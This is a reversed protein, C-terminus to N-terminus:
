HKVQADTPWLSLGDEVAKEIESTSHNSNSDQITSLALSEAETLWRIATITQSVEGSHETSALDPMVKRLLGLGATVQTSGMERNGLVHEILVNLINSNKIKDRHEAGMVYHPGKRAAM